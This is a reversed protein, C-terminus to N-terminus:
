GAGRSPLARRWSRWCTDWTTAIPAAPTNSLQGALIAALPDAAERRTIARQPREQTPIALNAEM